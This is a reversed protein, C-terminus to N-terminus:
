TKIKAWSVQLELAAMKEHLTELALVVAELFDISTVTTNGVSSGCHNRDVDSGLM